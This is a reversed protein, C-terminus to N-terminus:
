SLKSGQYAENPPCYQSAVAVVQSRAQLHGDAAAVADEEFGM